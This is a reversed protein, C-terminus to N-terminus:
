NGPKLPLPCITVIENLALVDLDHLVMELTDANHSMRTVGGGQGCMFHEPAPQAAFPIFHQNFLLDGM